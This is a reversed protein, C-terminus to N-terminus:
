KLTSTGAPMVFNLAAQAPWRMPLPTRLRVSRVKVPASGLTGTSPAVAVSLAASSRPRVSASMVPLVPSTRDTAACLGEVRADAAAAVAAPEVQRRSALAAEAGGAPRGARGM